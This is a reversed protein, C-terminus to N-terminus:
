GDEPTVDIVNSQRRSILEAVRDAIRVMTKQDRVERKVIEVLEVFLAMAQEETMVRKLDVQRKWEKAAINTKRDIAEGLENWSQESAVGANILRRLTILAANMVESDSSEIGAELETFASKLANWLSGSEGTGLRKILEKVRVTLIAIDDRSGAFEPDNLTEKFQEIFADPVYKSYGKGRYNVSDVGVPQRGGHLYCRTRGKVKPRRCPQGDAKRRAKCMWVEVPKDSPTWNDFRGPKNGVPDLKDM